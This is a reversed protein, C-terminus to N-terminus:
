ENTDDPVSSDFVHDDADLLSAVLNVLQEKTLTVTVSTTEDANYVTMRILEASIYESDKILSEPLSVMYVKGSQVPVTKVFM